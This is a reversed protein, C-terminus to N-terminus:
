PEIVRNETGSILLKKGSKVIPVLTDNWLPM